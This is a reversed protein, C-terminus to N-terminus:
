NSSVSVSVGSTSLSCSLDGNTASSCSSVPFSFSINTTTNSTNVIQAYLRAVQYNATNSGITLSTLAYSSSGGVLQDSTLNTTNSSMSLASNCASFNANCFKISNYTSSSGSANGTIKLSIAHTSSANTLPNIFLNGEKAIGYSYSSNVASFTAQFKTSSNKPYYPSGGYNNYPSNANSSNSSVNATQGDKSEADTGETSKDSPTLADTQQKPSQSKYGEPAPAGGPLFIPSNMAERDMPSLPQAPKDTIISKINKKQVSSLKQVEGTLNDITQQNQMLLSRLLQENNTAKEGALSRNNIQNATTAFANHLISLGFLLGFRTKM